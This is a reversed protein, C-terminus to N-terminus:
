ADLDTVFIEGVIFEGDLAPAAFDQALGQDENFFQARGPLLRLNQGPLKGPEVQFIAIDKGSYPIEDGKLLGRPL